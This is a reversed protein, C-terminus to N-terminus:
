ANNCRMGVAAKSKAPALQCIMTGPPQYDLHHARESLYGYATQVTSEKTEQAEQNLRLRACCTKVERWFL